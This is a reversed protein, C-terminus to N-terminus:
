KLKEKIISVIDNPQFPKHLFANFLSKENDDLHSGSMLIIPIKENYKKVKEALELGTMEPMFFDTVICDISNNLVFDYAENPNTFAVISYEESNLQKSIYFNLINLMMQEDDVILIKKM